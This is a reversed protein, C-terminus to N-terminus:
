IIHYGILLVLVLSVFFQLWLMAKSRGELLGKSQRVLIMEMSYILWIALFAKIVFALPFKLLVLLAIGTILILIYFVRLVNQLIKSIKKRGTSELLFASLFLILAISWSSVHSHLFAAYPM